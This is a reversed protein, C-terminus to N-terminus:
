ALARLRWFGSFREGLELNTSADSLVVMRENAYAHVIRPWSLVIAGHAAHRGFKFMAVDGPLAADVIEAHEKLVTLFRPEDRHMHWDHPYNGTEIKPILGVAAYVGILFQACDVGHGKVQARHHWPTRLWALAEAVIAERLEAKRAEDYLAATM